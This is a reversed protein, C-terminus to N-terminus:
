SSITFPREFVSCVDVTGSASKLHEKPPSQPPEPFHHPNTNAIGNQAMEGPTCIKVIM